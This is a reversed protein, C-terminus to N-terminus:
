KGNRYIVWMQQMRVIQDATFSTYCQDTSYDMYNHISDLGPQYPCSDKPPDTPCGATATSQQPTDTVFDGAGACSYGEFPHFLGLFHGTEHVATKGENYGYITGNPLSGSAVFCGDSVYVSPPPNQGINTPMTCQGLLGNRLDSMFYINLTSYTGQRLSQQMALVDAPTAGAAWADSVTRTLNVLKFQFGSGQYADNLETLQNLPMLPSISNAEATSLVFHFATPVTTAPFGRAALARGAPSGVHHQAQLQQHTTILDAPANDISTGCNFPIFNPDYQQQASAALALALPLPYTRM